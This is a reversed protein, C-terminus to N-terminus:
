YKFVYMGPIEDDLKRGAYQNNGAALRSNGLIAMALVFLLWAKKLNSAGDM